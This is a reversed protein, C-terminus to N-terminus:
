LGVLATEHLSNALEHSSLRMQTTQKEISLGIHRSARM